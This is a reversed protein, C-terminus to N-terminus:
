PSQTLIKSAPVIYDDKFTINAKSGSSTDFRVRDDIKVNGAIVCGASFYIHSGIVCDHNICTNSILYCNDGLLQTPGSLFM